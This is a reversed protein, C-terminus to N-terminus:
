AAHTPQEHHHFRRASPRTSLLPCRAGRARPYSPATREPRAGPETTDAGDGWTDRFRQVCSRLAPQQELLKLPAARLAPLQPLEDLEQAILAQVRHVEPTLYPTFALSRSQRMMGGSRKRMSEMAEAAGEGSPLGAALMSEM